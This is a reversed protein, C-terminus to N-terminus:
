LLGRANLAAIWHQRREKLRSDRGFRDLGETDVAEVAEFAFADPGHANWATQLSKDRHSGLRLSFWVGSQRTSLDPTAGVWAEGTAVCRVAYIGAEVKREKYARLLAKRGSM